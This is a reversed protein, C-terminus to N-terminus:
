APPPRDTTRDRLLAVLRERLRTLERSLALTAEGDDDFRRRHGTRAAGCRIRLANAEEAAEELRRRLIVIASSWRPPIM